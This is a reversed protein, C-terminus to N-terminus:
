PACNLPQYWPSGDSNYTSEAVGVGASTQVAGYPIQDYALNFSAAGSASVAWCTAADLSSLFCYFLHGGRVLTWSGGPGGGAQPENVRNFLPAGSSGLITFMLGPSSQTTVYALVIGLQGSAPDVASSYGVSDADVPNTSGCTQHTYVSSDVTGTPASQLDAGSRLLFADVHEACNLWQVSPNGGSCTATQGTAQCDATADLRKATLWVQTPTMVAAAGAPATFSRSAQSMGSIKTSLNINPPTSGAAAILPDVDVATIKQPTGHTDHGEEFVALTGNTGAALALATLDSENTSALEVVRVSSGQKRVLVVFSDDSVLVDVGDSRRVAVVATPDFSWSAQYTTEDLLVQATGTPTASVLRISRNVDLAVLIGQSDSGALFWPSGTYLQVAPDTLTLGTCAPSSTGGSGGTASTGGTGTGGTGTAGTGGTATSGGSASGGTGTPSGGGSSGCGVLLLIVAIVRRGYMM